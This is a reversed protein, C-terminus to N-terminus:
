LVKDLDVVVNKQPPEIPKSEGTVDGPNKTMADGDKDVRATVVVKGALSTGALMADRSDLEFSIPFKDVTLKKVALPIGPTGAPDFKRAVLFIVDGTKVKSKVKGDLKIVGSLVTKPDFDGGPTTGQFSGSGMSGAGMSGGNGPTGGMVPPHGPPLQGNEATTDVPPHTPHGAPVAPAAGPQDLPPIGTPPPAAATEKKKDCGLAFLIVLAGVACAGRRFSSM